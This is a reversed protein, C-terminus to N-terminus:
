EEGNHVGQLEEVAEEDLRFRRRLHVLVRVLV